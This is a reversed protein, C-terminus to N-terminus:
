EPRDFRAYARLALKGDHQPEPATLLVNAAIGRLSTQQEMADIAAALEKESGTFTIRCLTRHCEVDGAAPVRTHIERETGTKWAADVPESAFADAIAAPAAAPKDDPGAAPAAPLTPREPGAVRGAAPPKAAPEAAKAAEHDKCACILLIPWIPWSRM